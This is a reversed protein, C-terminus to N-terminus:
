SETDALLADLEKITQDLNQYLVTKMGTERAGAILWPSDDIFVVEEPKVGLREAALKYIEPDPKTLGVDASVIVEDFCQEIREAGIKREVVGKNANSLVATKYKGRLQKIHDLLAMDPLDSQRVAQRWDDVSIGVQGAMGSRFDEDSIMGLNAQGLMSEIFERDKGPDGGATRYTHEFGKGVLVGFCDFVIAKIM